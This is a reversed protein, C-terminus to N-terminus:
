MKGHDIGWQAAIDVLSWVYDPMYDSMWQPCSSGDFATSLKGRIRQTEESPRVSQWLESIKEAFEEDTPTTTESKSM